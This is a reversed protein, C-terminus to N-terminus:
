YQRTVLTDDKDCIYSLIEYDVIISQTFQFSPSSKKQEHFWELQNLKILKQSGVKTPSNVTHDVSKKNVKSLEIYQTTLAIM